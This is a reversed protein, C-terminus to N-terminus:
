IYVIQCQDDVKAKDVEIGRQSIIHGLVIGQKVMFHCKEWNLVLNKEKCRVLVLTLRDLCEQFSSEFVSFDDMFIEMIREVMDSFISIMCRQFTAPANCLGFPMRRYAFTGFPCTFTTKEQDEPDVPIQNYGSYGDLFCYYEHGALHEVMQDIFPLPFHDKRTAINLKRYDICVRWGSQIRTPVLENDKNTVVTLGAKKPVVHIPSVWKSDSIPYIIGADLLKIVEARVVEQMAPNLRRQPERSPKSDEELHIKHMVLSPSIGKIDEITWGIAEKHERLVEILKEEQADTLDSAIIVPLSEAPGLFKYKLNDPLPKLEKKQSDPVVTEKKEKNELLTTELLADAQEMLKDMDLDEGFQALCAELPDEISSEEVVEEMIEEILCVQNMQDYNLPQKRVHFINLEVTMNGFSIKMVGSRCNILANATALFPRGLIVPIETGVMQVPETDLVIFDVPFYFKDVKILVDEVKGRPVKVSRDALQLTMTTPKLEGLGLQLYVSYPLLNVSAGLDLLAREIQSVGIMCTITPCGPDKYKLHLKCQLIASVQETMFAKKPVNTKRKVTVLDKLFKAYSPIQQIADLFPINIQVQKFVELIDELKGGNKPAQLREPYPAKPVLARPPYKIDQTVISPEADAEKQNDGEEEKEEEKEKQEEEEAEEPNVVKNDVKKGSRLTVIAQVHEQNSSNGCAKPNNVAQSPLKGKDREGLHNVLQGMQMELKSIAQTNVMTSQRIDSISQGTMKMFDRMTDELSQNSSAPAQNPVQYSSSAPQALRGQNPYSSFGPPYHPAGGQNTNPQNQKWSFNPHNRWGPNYTESYPGNSPKQFSNFANVQEMEFVTMSPCNQALHMPSACVSCSEVPLTNVANVPKGVSMEDLRKVIADMRQTLEQECKLELIGGKKDKRASKDRCSSFDWNQTNAAIKELAKYALDGTLNLFTGGNMLEIMSRNTQSLGQYFFQVLRWKEYGHPPCKMLMDKFRTWCETFKEDEDQSFSSIEKRADNVRSMPYFRHYFQKLLEKWSTISRPALSDLWETARDHLSFPFLRLNVSEESFNQFKTTVTISRFKKVHSYPNEHDLGYFSPLMQIVHPKLDYHTANTPPLVICSHTSVATPNLLEHLATTFDLEYMRRHERNGARADENEEDEEEANRRNEEHQEVRPDRQNDGMRVQARRARRLTRELDPDLSTLELNV